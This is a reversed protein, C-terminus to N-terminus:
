EKRAKLGLEVEYAMQKAVAVPDKAGTIPRGIIPYDSGAKVAEFVTMTRKQDDPPSNKDRIGPTGFELGRLDERAKLVLLEKPSCIIGDVGAHMADRAFELVKAKASMGYIHPVDEDEVLSTLITVAYVKATGKNAVAKAVAEIGASQHVNFWRINLKSLQRAARGVTNPIDHFKGDWAIRDELLQYLRRLDRLNQEAQDIRTSLLWAPIGNIFELGLKFLGVHDKLMEVLSIAKPIDDFIDLAVILRDKPKLEVFM